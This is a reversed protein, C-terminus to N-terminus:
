YAMSDRVHIMSLNMIWKFLHLLKNKFQVIKSPPFYKLIFKETMEEWITNSNPTLSNFWLMVVRNLSFPFLRLKIADKSVQYKKYSDCIAVFNLLHLDPGENPLGSFHRVSHLMQSMM